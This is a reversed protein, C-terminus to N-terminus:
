DVIWGDDIMAEFSLYEKSQIKEDVEKATKIGLDLLELFNKLYIKSKGTALLFGNEPLEHKERIKKMPLIPWLGWTGPNRMMKLCEQREKEDIEM